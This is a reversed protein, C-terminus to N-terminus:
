AMKERVGELLEVAYLPSEPTEEHKFFAFVETGDAALRHLRESLVRREATSYEEKRFRYYAFDATQQEPTTLKKTEAVCLAVNYKRLADFIEDSFWSEHRFEFAARLSRPLMTLFEQLLKADSKLQPPLQFLVPGLRGAQALPSISSLFRQLPEEAGRLKKFHTIVQNAKLAFRFHKPTQKLWNAITKETLLHRFTYNVEVATLRSAYHELFKTQPLKEPYFVPQWIKYAWGSTGVYLNAM